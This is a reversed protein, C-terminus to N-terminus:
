CHSVREFRDCFGLRQALAAGGKHFGVQGLVLAKRGTFQGEAQLDVLAVQVAQKAVPGNAGPHLVAQAGVEAVGENVSNV